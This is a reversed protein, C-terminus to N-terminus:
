QGNKNFHQATSAKSVKDGSDYYKNSMTCKTPGTDRMENRGIRKWNSACYVTPVNPSPRNICASASISFLLGSIILFTRVHPRRNFLVFSDASNSCQSFGYFGNNKGKWKKSVM